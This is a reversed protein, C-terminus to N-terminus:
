TTAHPVPCEQYPDLREALSRLVDASRSRVTHLRLGRRDQQVPAHPLASRTDDSTVHVAFWGAFLDM